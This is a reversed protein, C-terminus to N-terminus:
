SSEHPLLFLASQVQFQGCRRVGGPEERAGEVATADGDGARRVLLRVGGQGRGGGPAGEEAASTAPITVIVLFATPPPPPHCLYPGLNM